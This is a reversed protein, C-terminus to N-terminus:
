FHTLQTINFQMVYLQKLKNRFLFQQDERLSIYGILYFKTSSISVKDKLYSNLKTLM